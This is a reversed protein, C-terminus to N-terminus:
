AVSALFHKWLPGNQVGSCVRSVGSGDAAWLSFTVSGGHSQM